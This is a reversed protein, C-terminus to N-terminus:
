PLTLPWTHVPSGATSLTAYRQLMRHMAANRNEKLGCREVYHRQWRAGTQGNQIRAAIISLHQRAEDAEVGAATLAQQARPLWVRLLDVVPQRVMRGHGDPWDVQADLGSQAARYLNYEAREFPFEATDPGQAALALTLGLSLAANAMMDAITPGSPLARFEIRLHGGGPADYVPRNWHWITGGHTMIEGLRPTQGAAMAADPDEESCIPLLVDHGHLHDAIAQAASGQWWHSGIGVRPRVHWALAPANRDDVSQKFVVIRTEEWLRHQLFLPSNGCAAVSLGLAMQAANYTRVFDAPRVKLHLQLSTNAGEFTVGDAHLQLPDDGNIRLEFPRGRHARLVRSLVRYRNVPTMAADGLDAARLSPLIGVAVPQAQHAAAAEHLQSVAEELQQQLRLFPRGSFGLPTSNYEINFRDIEATFRADGMAELLELNIMAPRGDPDMLSLELEAGVSAPSGDFDPRQLLEGLVAVCRALRADFRAFDTATFSQQPLDQGM